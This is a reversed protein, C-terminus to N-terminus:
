NEVKHEEKNFFFDITRIVSPPVPYRFLSECWFYICISPSGAATEQEEEMWIQLEKDENQQTVNCLNEVASFSVPNMRHMFKDSQM